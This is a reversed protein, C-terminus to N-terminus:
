AVYEELYTRADPTVRGHQLMLNAMSKDAGTKAAKELSAAVQEKTRLPIGLREAHAHLDLM